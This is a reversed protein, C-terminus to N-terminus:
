SASLNPLDDESNEPASAQIIGARHSGRTFPEVPNATVDGPRVEPLDVGWAYISTTTSGDSDTVGISVRDSPILRRVRDVFTEYVQGIDLSSGIVQAVEALLSGERAQRLESELVRKEFVRDISATVLATDDLPRTLIDFAGLRKAEPVPVVSPDTIAILDIGRKSGILRALRVADAPMDEIGLIVVDPRLGDLAVIGDGPSSHAGFEHGLDRVADELMSHLTQDSDVVLVRGPPEVPAENAKSM